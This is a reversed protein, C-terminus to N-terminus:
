KINPRLLKFYESSVEQFSVTTNYQEGNFEYRTLSGSRASGHSYGLIDNFGNHMTKLVEFSGRQLSTAGVYQYRGNSMNKFIHYQCGGNGCLDGILYEPIGDNTLDIEFEDGITEGSVSNVFNRLESKSLNSGNIKENGRAFSPAVLLLTILIYNFCRLIYKVNVGM